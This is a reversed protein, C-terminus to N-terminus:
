SRQRDRRGAYDAKLCRFRAESGSECSLRDTVASITAPAFHLEGAFPTRSPSSIIAVLCLDDIRRVREGRMRRTVPSAATVSGVVRDAAASSLEEKVVWDTGVDARAPALTVTDSVKLFVPM